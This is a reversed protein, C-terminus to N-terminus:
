QLKRHGHQDIAALMQFQHLDLIPIKCRNEFSYAVTPSGLLRMMPPFVIM